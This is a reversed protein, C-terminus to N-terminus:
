SLNNIHDPFVFSDYSCYPCAFIADSHHGLTRLASYAFSYKVLGPTLCRTDSLMYNETVAVEAKQQQQTKKPQHQYPCAHVFIPMGVCM